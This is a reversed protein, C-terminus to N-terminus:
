APKPKETSCSVSFESDQLVPGSFKNQAFVPL